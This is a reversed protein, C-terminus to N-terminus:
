TLNKKILKVEKLLDIFSVQKLVWKARLALLRVPLAKGSEGIDQYKQAGVSVLKCLRGAYEDIKEDGAMEAVWYITTDALDCFEKVAGAAHYYRCGNLLAGSM